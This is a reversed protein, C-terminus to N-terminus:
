KITYVHVVPDNYMGGRKLAGLAYLYLRRTAPDFCSGAVMQNDKTLDFPLEVVSISSPEISLKSIAGTAAKSLTDFDYFYWTNQNKGNWNSGGYDYGLRSTVQRAFTVYGKKDPLDIFVGSEIIDGSTWTGQWPNAPNDTSYGAYFYNGDRRARNSISSYM